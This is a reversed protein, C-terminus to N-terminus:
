LSKERSTLCFVLSEFYDWETAPLCWWLIVPGSTQNHLSAKGERSEPFTTM